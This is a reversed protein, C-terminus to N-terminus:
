NIEGTHSSQDFMAMKLLAFLRDAREEISVAELLTQKEAARFPLVQSIINIVKMDSLDKIQQFDLRINKRKLYDEIRFFFEDRNFRKVEAEILDQEFSDLDIDGMRYLKGEKSVERLLRFRIVGRVTIMYQRNEVSKSEVVEVLTGIEYLDKHDHEQHRPQIIGIHSGNEDQDEFMQLYRPEFLRLPLSCFPLVICQNLPFLPVTSPFLHIASEGM